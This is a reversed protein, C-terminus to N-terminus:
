GFIFDSEKRDFYLDSFRPSSNVGRAELVLEGIGCREDGLGLGLGSGHEKAFSSLSSRHIDGHGFGRCRWLIGCQCDGDDLFKSILVREIGQGPLCVYQQYQTLM